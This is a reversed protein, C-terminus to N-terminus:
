SGMAIWKAKARTGGLRAVAEEGKTMWTSPTTWAVLIQHESNGSDPYM